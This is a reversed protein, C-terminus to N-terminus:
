KVKRILDSAASVDTIPEDHLPDYAERYLEARRMLTELWTAGYFVYLPLEKRRPMKLLRLALAPPPLAVLTRVTRQPQQNLLDIQGTEPVFQLTARVAVSIRPDPFKTVSEWDFSLYALNWAAADESLLPSLSPLRYDSIPKPSYRITM